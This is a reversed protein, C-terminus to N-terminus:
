TDGRGAGSSPRPDARKERRPPTLRTRRARRRGGDLELARNLYREALLRLETAILHDDAADAKALVDRAKGRYADAEPVPEKAVRSEDRTRLVCRNSTRAGCM